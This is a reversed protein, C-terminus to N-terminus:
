EAVACDQAEQFDCGDYICGFQGDENKFVEFEAAVRTEQTRTMAYEPSSISQARDFVFTRCGCAIGKAKVVITHENLGCSSNYGLCLKTGGTLNANPLGFVIRLNELTQELLEASVFCREMNLDRKVIGNLQDAETEVFTREFRVTVGSATLGLDTGDVCITASGTIINDQYAM